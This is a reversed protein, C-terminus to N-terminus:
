RDSSLEVSSLATSAALDAAAPQPHSFRVLADTIEQSLLDEMESAASRDRTFTDGWLVSNSEADILEV